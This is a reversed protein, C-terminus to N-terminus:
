PPFLTPGRRGPIVGALSVWGVSRNYIWLVPISILGSLFYIWSGAALDMFLLFTAGLSILLFPPFLSRPSRGPYLPSM